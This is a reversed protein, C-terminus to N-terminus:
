VGKSFQVQFHHMKKVCKQLNKTKIEIHFAFAASLESIDAFKHPPVILEVIQGVRAPISQFIIGDPYSQVERLVQLQEDTEIRASYVRYNDFRVKEAFIIAFCVAFIALVFSKM